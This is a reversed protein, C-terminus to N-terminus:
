ACIKSKIKKLVKTENRSIEVQSMNMISATKEQTYDKFYRLMILQREESSLMDIEKKLDIMDDIVSRSDVFLLDNYTYGEENLSADTSITYECAKIVDELYNLDINMFESIERNSVERNLHNVLAERSKLYAQYIKHYEDSVKINRDNKIYELIEGYIYKYAYTSFKTNESNKYNKYAKIIGLVGVQYLDEIPYYNSFNSAIKYILNKNSDILEELM